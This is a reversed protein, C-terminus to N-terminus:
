SSKALRAWDVYVDYGTGPGCQMGFGLGVPGSAGGPYAAAHAVVPDNVTSDAYTKQLVWTPSDAPNAALDNSFVQLTIDGNPQLLLDLKYQVWKYTDLAGVIAQSWLAVATGSTARVLRAEYSASVAVIMLFYGDQAFCNPYNAGAGATLLTASTRVGIGVSHAGTTSRPALCMAISASLDNLKTPIYGSRNYRFTGHGHLLGALNYIRRCWIDTLPNTRNLDPVGFTNHQFAVQNLTADGGSSGDINLSWDSLAM